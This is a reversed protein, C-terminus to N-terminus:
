SLLHESQGWHPPPHSFDPHPCNGPHVGIVVTGIKKQRLAEAKPRTEPGLFTEPDAKQWVAAVPLFFSRM